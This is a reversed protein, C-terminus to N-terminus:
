GVVDLVDVIHCCELCFKYCTEKVFIVILCEGIYMHFLVTFNCTLLHIPVGVICTLSSRNCM